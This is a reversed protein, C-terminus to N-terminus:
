NGTALIWRLRSVPATFKGLRILLSWVEIRGRLTTEYGATGNDVGIRTWLIDTGEVSCGEKWSSEELAMAFLLVDPLRVNCRFNGHGLHLESKQTSIRPFAIRFVCDLEVVTLPLSHVVLLNGVSAGMAGIDKGRALRISSFAVGPKEKPLVSRM